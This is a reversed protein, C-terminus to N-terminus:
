LTKFEVECDFELHTVANKIHEMLTNLKSTKPTRNFKFTASISPIKNKTACQTSLTSNPEDSSKEPESVSSEPEDDATTKHDAEVTAAAQDTTVDPLNANNETAVEPEVPTNFKNDEENTTADGTSGEM